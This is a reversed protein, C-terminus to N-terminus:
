AVQKKEKSFFLIILFALYSLVAIGAFATNYYGLPALIAVIIWHTTVIQTSNLRIPFNKYRCIVALGSLNWGYLASFTHLRIVFTASKEYWMPFFHLVIYLIGTVATYVLFMMGSMLFTKQQNKKVSKIFLFLMAVVAVFLITTVVVQPVIVEMLIFGFFIIVGLNVTWFCANKINNLGPSPSETEM